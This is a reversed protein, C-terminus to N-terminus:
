CVYNIFIVVTFYFITFVVESALILIHTVRHFHLLGASWYTLLFYLCLTPLIKKSLAACLKVIWRERSKEKSYASHLNKLKANMDEQDKRKLYDDLTGGEPSIVNVKPPTYSAAEAVLIPHGEPGAPYDDEERDSRLNIQKYM